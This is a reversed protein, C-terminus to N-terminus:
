LVRQLVQCLLYYAADCLLLAYNVTESNQTLSVRKTFDVPHKKDAAASRLDAGHALKNRLVFLPIALEEVTYPPADPKSHWNPLVPAQPGLCDCLKRQFAEKGGSDFIAELGTVWLLGAIYPHFHELGLQLLTLANKQEVCRGDMVSQIRDIMTPVQALMADDFKNMMAWQGPQMAPRREIEQRRYIFGLTQIPKVIQIAMLGAYFRDTGQQRAIEEGKGPLWQPYECRLYRTAKAEEEIEGKGQVWDWRHALLQDNPRVLSLGDRLPISDDGGNAIGLLATHITDTSVSAERLLYRLPPHGRDRRSTGVWIPTGGTGRPQPGTIVTHRHFHPSSPQRLDTGAGGWVRAEAVICVLVM